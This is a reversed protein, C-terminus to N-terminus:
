ALLPGVLVLTAAGLAAALAADAVPNGIRPMGAVSPVLVASIMAGMLGWTLYLGFMTAGILAAGLIGALLGTGLIAYIQTNTM